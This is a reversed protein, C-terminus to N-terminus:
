GGGTPLSTASLGHLTAHEGMAIPTGGIVSAAMAFMRVMRSDPADWYEASHPVIKLLGLNTSDPGDPFWPRAYATWLAEIRVRDTSLEGHGSVSVYTSNDVDVFSLNVVRLHELKSSRMDTFFWLAGDADLALPSMPRSLLRGSDDATILMAVKMNELLHSLQTREPKTQTEIKM